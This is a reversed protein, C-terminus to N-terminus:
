LTFGFVFYAASIQPNFILSAKVPLEFSESIKLKKNGTVGMNVLGSKNGFAGEAPTMGLFLDLSNDQIVITYGAEFYASYYTKENLDKTADYGWRKDNGYFFVAAQVWLPFKEDGKYLISAEMTHATKKDSFVFFRTDPSAPTGIVSPIYYDTLILSLKKYSYKAYLDIEKYFGNTAVSSWCGLEVNFGSVSLSSQISPSSGYDIGRWIYRSMIDAGLNLKIKVKSSDSVTANQSQLSNSFLVIILLFLSFITFKIKM